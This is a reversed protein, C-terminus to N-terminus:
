RSTGIILVTGQNPVPVCFKGVKKACPGAGGYIGLQWAGIKKVQGYEYIKSPPGLWVRASRPPGIIMVHGKFGPCTCQIVGTLRGGFVGSFGYAINVGGWVFFPLLLLMILTLLIHKKRSIFNM